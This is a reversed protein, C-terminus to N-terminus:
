LSRCRVHRFILFITKFPYNYNMLTSEPLSSTFSGLSARFICVRLPTFHATQNYFLNIQRMGLSVVLDIDSIRCLPNWLPTPRIHKFDVSRCPRHQPASIGTHHGLRLLSSTPAYPRRTIAYSTYSFHCLGVFYNRSSIQYTSFHNTHIVGM